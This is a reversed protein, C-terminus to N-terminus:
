PIGKLGLWAKKLHDRDDLFTLIYNLFLLLINVLTLKYGQVLIAPEGRATKRLQSLEKEYQLQVELLKKNYEQKCSKEFEVKELHYNQKVRDEIQREMDRLRAEANEFNKDKYYAARLNGTKLGEIMTLLGQVQPESQVKDFENNFPIRRNGFLELLKELQPPSKLLYEHLTLHKAQILDAFTFIVIVYDLMQEGFYSLFTKLAEYDEKKYRDALRMVFLVAHPGPAAINICKRIEMQLDEPDTETDFIGPTDVVLIQKGQVKAHKAECVHTVASGGFDSQFFNEGVITNATASKGVGTKGIM